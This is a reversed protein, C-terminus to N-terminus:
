VRVEVVGDVVRVGYSPVRVTRDDLCAGSRLDFAQKYIPSAVMPVGARSGVIGRSLVWANSFPDRNGIAYVQGDHTRFIAIQEGDVLAAVGLEPRLDDLLCVVTWTREALATM